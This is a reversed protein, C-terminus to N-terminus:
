AEGKAKRILARFVGQIMLEAVPVLDRYKENEARLFAKRGQVVFTKLTCQGDILAAVIQGDRPEPGHEMVVIDGELIHRGIMSDGTVQLAFTNRTPKFGLTAVDVRICGEAAEERDVPFGAPIAGLLPIDAVPSHFRDLPSTVVLTRAKGTAEGLFGKRRILRLHGAVTAPSALDFHRAIELLSPSGGTAEQTRRIFECIQGQRKTLEPRM